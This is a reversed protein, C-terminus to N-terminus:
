SRSTGMSNGFNPNEKRFKYEREIDEMMMDYMDTGPMVVREEIPEGSAIRFVDELYAEADLGQRRPDLYHGYLHLSDSIDTYSGREV